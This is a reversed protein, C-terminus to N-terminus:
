TLMGSLVGTGYNPNGVTDLHELGMAHALTTLLQNTKKNDYKHTSGTQLRGGAGGAVIYNIDSFSHAVSVDTFWLIAINDLLTTGDIEPIQDLRDLLRIFKEARWEWVPGVLNPHHLGHTWNHFTGDSGGLFPYNHDDTTGSHQIGVVRTMDCALAQVLLDIHTDIVVPMHQTQLFWQNGGPLMQPEELTCEVAVQDLREEVERISTLHADIKHRDETSVKDGIPEVSKYVYDLVSRRQARVAQMSEDNLGPGVEYLREFLKFPDLDSPLIQRQWYSLSHGGNHKDVTTRFGATLSRFPTDVGQEELGRAIVQDLSSGSGDLTRKGGAGDYFITENGNPSRLREGAMATMSGRRHPSAGSDICARNDLGSVLMLRDNWDNLARLPSNAGFIPPGSGNSPYYGNINNRHQGTFWWAFRLPPGDGPAASLTPVFPSLAAVMTTGGLGALLQRRRLPKRFM